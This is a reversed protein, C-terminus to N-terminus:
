QGELPLPQPEVTKTTRGSSTRSPTTHREWAGRGLVIAVMVVLVGLSELHPRTLSDGLRPLHFGAVSRTLALILLALSASGVQPRQTRIVLGGVVTVLAVVLGVPFVPGAFGVPVLGFAAPPGFCGDRAICMAEYGAYGMLFLPAAVSLRASASAPERRTFFLFALAGVALGPWFEVGGRIIMIDRLRGLSAPDDLTLAIIRGGVLGILGATILPDGAPRWHDARSPAVRTILWPLASAVLISLLLGRDIM